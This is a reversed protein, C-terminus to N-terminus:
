RRPESLGAVAVRVAEVALINLLLVIVLAAVALRLHGLLAAALALGCVLAAAVQIRRLSRLVTAPRAASM